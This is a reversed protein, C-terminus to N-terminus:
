LFLEKMEWDSVPEPRRTRHYESFFLDKAKRLTTDVRQLPETVEQSVVSVAPAVVASM